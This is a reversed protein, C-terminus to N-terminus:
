QTLLKEFAPVVIMRHRRQVLDAAAMRNLAAAVYRPDAGVYSGLLSQSIGFLKPGAPRQVHTHMFAIIRAELGDGPPLWQPRDARALQTTLRNLVNLRMVDFYRIMAGMAHKDVFMLRADTAATVSQRHTRRSGYLVDLGVVEPARLEEEVWWDGVASSVRTTFSGELLFTLGDCLEGQRCVATGAAVKRFDLHSSEIIRTVDDRGLGQFLPLTLLSEFM